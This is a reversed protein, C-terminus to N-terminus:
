RNSNIIEFMDGILRRLLIGPRLWSTTNESRNNVGTMPTKAWLLGAGFPVGGFTVTGGFLSLSLGFVLSFSSRGLLGYDLVCLIVFFLLDSLVEM